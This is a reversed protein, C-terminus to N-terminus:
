RFYWAQRNLQDSYRPYLARVMIYFCDAINAYSIILPEDAPCM